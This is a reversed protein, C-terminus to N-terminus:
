TKPSYFLEKFFRKKGIECAEKRIEICIWHRGLKECALGTTMSGATFDLVIDGVNTYTLVLEEILDLPKQTPMLPNANKYQMLQRPYKRTDGKRNASPNKKNAFEGYNNNKAKKTKYSNGM